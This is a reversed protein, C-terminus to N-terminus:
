PQAGQTATARAKAARALEQTIEVDKTLAPLQEAVASSKATVPARPGLARTIARWSQGRLTPAPLRQEAYDLVFQARVPDHAALYLRAVRQLHRDLEPAPLKNTLTALVAAAFGPAGMAEAAEAASLSVAVGEPGDSLNASSFLSLALSRTDEDSSDLTAQVVKQCFTHANTCLAKDQENAQTLHEIAVRDEDMALEQRVLHVVAEHLIVGTLGELSPPKQGLCTGTLDCARLQVVRNVPGASAVKSYWVLAAEADGRLLALDGLRMRALHADPTSLGVAYLREAEFLAGEALLCEAQVVESQGPCQDPIGLLSFPWPQLPVGASAWHWTVGRLARVDLYAGNADEATSAWLRRTTCKLELQERRSVQTPCLQSSLRGAIRAGTLTITRTLPDVRAELPGGTRELAVREVATTFGTPPASQLVLSVLLSIM